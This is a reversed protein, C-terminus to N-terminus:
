AVFCAVCAARFLERARVWLRIQDTVTEPVAPTRRAVHPHAHQQLYAVVQEATIGCALAATVSERTLSGVFLNPLRYEPRVFFRLIALELPSSTYAYVRYNTEVIIHGDGARAGSSAALGAAVAAALPTPCYWEHAAAADGAMAADGDSDADPDADDTGGFILLMGLTALDGLLRREAASAGDIPHPVHPPLFSLRLLFAVAAPADGRLAESANLYQQLLLWLQSARELLLYRFGAESVTLPEGASRARSPLPPAAAAATGGGGGSIAAAGAAAAAAAAEAPTCMLGAAHLLAGV